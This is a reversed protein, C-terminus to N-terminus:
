MAVQHETYPLVSIELNGNRIRLDDILAKEESPDKMRIRFSLHFMSGMGTTKVGVNEASKLYRAFPKDFVHSYDLSEPITVVLLKESEMSAHRFLSVSSLLLFILGLAVLILAGYAVYGMGFAVGAAAAMLVAVIEDATGPASRFRILAFAGGFAVGAGISGNVFTLIVAVAFPLLSTVVFFRSKARIRLSILWSYLIGALISVLGMTLIQGPTVSYSYISDFM